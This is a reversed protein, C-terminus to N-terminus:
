DFATNLPDLHQVEIGVRSGTLRSAGFEESEIVRVLRLYRSREQSYADGQPLLLSGAMVMLVIRNRFIDIALAQHRRM